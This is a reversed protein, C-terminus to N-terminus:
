PEMGLKDAFQHLIDKVDRSVELEDIQEYMTRAALRRKEAERKLDAAEQERRREKRRQPSSM